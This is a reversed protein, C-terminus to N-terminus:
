SCIRVFLCCCFTLLALFRHNEDSDCGQLLLQPSLTCSDEDHATGRIYSDEDHLMGRITRHITYIYLCPAMKLNNIPHSTKDTFQGYIGFFNHCLALFKMKVGFIAMKVWLNSFKSFIEFKKISMSM